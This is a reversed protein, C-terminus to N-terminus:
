EGVLAAVTSDALAEQGEATPHFAYELPAGLRLHNIWDHEGCSLEHGALADEVEVFRVRAAAAARAIVRDLARTEDDLFRLEARGLLGFAACTRRGPQSPFLRPYDLVLLAADPAARRIARYAAALPAALREAQERVRDRGDRRFWLDCRPLLACTALVRGFGADNGGVSLTVLDVGTLGALRHVQAVRREPERRGARDELVDALRAGSCALSKSSYVLVRAALLPWARASRHCTNEGALASGPLFPPVGEGSSFSDGLAVLRGEGRAVPALLLLALVALLASRAM